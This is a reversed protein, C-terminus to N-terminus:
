RLRRAIIKAHNKNLIKMIVGKTSKYINIFVGVNLGAVIYLVTAMTM